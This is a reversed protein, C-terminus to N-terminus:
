PDVVSRLDTVQKWSRRTRSTPIPLASARRFTRASCDSREHHVLPMIQEAEDDTVLFEVEVALTGALEFFRQEHLIHHRGFGAMARFASGCRINLKNADELLWEWILRGRYPRGERVNFRLFSGQM